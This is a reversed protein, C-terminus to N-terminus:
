DSLLLSQLQLQIWSRDMYCSSYDWSYVIFMLCRSQVVNNEKIVFLAFRMCFSVSRHLLVPRLLVFVVMVPSNSWVVYNQVIVSNLLDELSTWTVKHSTLWFHTKEVSKLLFDGICFKLFGLGASARSSCASPHDTSRCSLCVSLCVSMVFSIITKRLKTLAGLFHLCLICSLFLFCDRIFITVDWKGVLVRFLAYFETRVTTDHAVPVAYAVATQFVFHERFFIQSHLTFGDM